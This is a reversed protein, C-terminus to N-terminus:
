IPVSANRSRIQQLGAERVDALPDEPDMSSVLDMTWSVDDDVSGSGSGATRRIARASLGGMTADLFDSQVAVPLSLGLPYRLSLGFARDDDNSDDHDEHGAGGRHRYIASAPYAEEDIALHAAHAHSDTRLPVLGIVSLSRPFLHQPQSRKADDFAYRTAEILDTTPPPM